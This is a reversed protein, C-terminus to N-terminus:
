EFAYVFVALMKIKKQLLKIYLIKGCKIQRVNLNTETNSNSGGFLWIIQTHSRHSIRMLIAITLDGRRNKQILDVTLSFGNTNSQFVINKFKFLCCTEFSLASALHCRSGYMSVDCNVTM